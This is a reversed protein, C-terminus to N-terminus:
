NNAICYGFKLLESRFNTKYYSASLQTDAGTDMPLLPAFTGKAFGFATFVSQWEAVLM